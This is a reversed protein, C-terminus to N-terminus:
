NKKLYHKEEPPITRDRYQKVTFYTVELKLMTTRRYSEPAYNLDHFRGHKNMIMDLGHRKADDDEDPIVSIFGEGVISDFNMGWQCALATQHLGWMADIEFGVRNNKKLLNLKRGEKACHAYFVLTGKELDYEYGYNIPVIYPFGEDEDMFAIRIIHNAMLIRNIEVPDTQQRLAIRMPQHAM